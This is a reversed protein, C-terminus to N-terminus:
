RKRSIKNLKQLVAEGKEERWAKLYNSLATYMSRSTGLFTIVSLAWALNFSLGYIKFVLFGLGLLVSTLLFTLISMVYTSGIIYRVFIKDSKGMTELYWHQIVEVIFIVILSIVCLLPFPLDKIENSYIISHIGYALLEVGAIKGIPTWHRDNEEYMAGVLVIQGEILEPHCNVQEPSLTRFVTPSFNIKVDNTREGVINQGAYLNSVQTAFSPIQKGEFLECVPVKRKMNDYLARPMNTTGETLPTIEHFFSHISKTWGISDNAWNFLKMSYVINKYKSAVAILSDNGEFDEGENDFCVDLGIVKPNHVEIDALLTAIDARSTLQTMDVITVIRSTDPAAGEKQIEYYIDTFSFDQIARKVPDLPKAFIAVLAFLSSICISLFTITLHRGLFFPRVDRHKNGDKRNELRQDSNM